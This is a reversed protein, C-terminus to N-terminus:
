PRIRLPSFGASKGTWCDAFNSSTTLRLVAFASPSVTGSVSCALASSTISHPPAREDRQEAARSHPRECRARLLALGHPAHAHEHREGCVVRLHLNAVRCKQLPQLLNPQVTPSLM